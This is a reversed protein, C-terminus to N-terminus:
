KLISYPSSTISIVRLCRSVGGYDRPDVLGAFGPPPTGAPDKGVRVLAIRRHVRDGFNAVSIQIGSGRGKADLVAFYPESLGEFDGPGYQELGQHRFGEVRGQPSLVHDAAARGLSSQGDAAIELNRKRNGLVPAVDVPRM